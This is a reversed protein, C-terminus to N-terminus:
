LENHKAEFDPTRATAIPHFRRGNGSVLNELTMKTDLLISQFLQNSEQRSYVQKGVVEARSNCGRKPDHVQDAPFQVRKSIHFVRVIAAHAESHGEQGHYDQNQAAQDARNACQKECLCSTFYLKAPTAKLAQSAPLKFLGGAFGNFRIRNTGASPAHTM